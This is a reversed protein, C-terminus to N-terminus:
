LDKTLGRQKSKTTVFGYGNQRKWQQLLGFIAESVVQVGNLHFTGKWQCLENTTEELLEYLGDLHLYNANSRALGYM